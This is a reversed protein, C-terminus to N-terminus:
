KSGISKFHCKGYCWRPSCLLPTKLPCKAAGKEKIKSVIEDKKNAAIMDPKIICITIPKTSKM